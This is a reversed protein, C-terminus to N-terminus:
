NNLCIPVESSNCATLHMVRRDDRGLRGTASHWVSRNYWVVLDGPQWAHIYVYEAAIAPHMWSEVLRRSETLGVFVPNSNIETELCSLCRPQPMLAQLKTEPCTWVLPYVQAMPDDFPTGPLECGKKFRAESEPDVVRLGNDSNALQYTVEFPRPLYHVQTHLCQQRIDHRMLDYAIRGSAFATSGAPCWLREKEEDAFTLWHGEGAPAEICRMQTYHGPAHEYFTGDIHWQLVGGGLVQSGEEEGYATRDGGLTVNLGYHSIEGKGLVLVGSEDPIQYTGAKNGQEVKYREWPNYVQDRWVTTGEPYIARYFGVEQQPTLHGQDPFVVVQNHHLANRVATISVSDISACDVGFAFAGFPANDIPQLQM